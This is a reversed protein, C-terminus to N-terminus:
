QQAPRDFNWYMFLGYVIHFFGFGVTWFYLGYGPFQLAIIGLVVFLIGLSRLTELTYKSAQILALGYFILTIPAILGYYGQILISIGVAGGTFLPICFNILLRKSTSNWIQDNRKKAKRRSLIYASFISLVCVSIAIGVMLLFSKDRLSVHIIETSDLIYQTCISGVIAYVGALFGSLGSLSVFRSSKDMMTKITALQDIVQNEKM